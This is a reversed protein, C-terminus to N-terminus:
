LVIEALREIDDLDDSMPHFILEDLGLDAFEKVAQRLSDASGHMNASVMNAFDEGSISYYDYAKGRGKEVDGLAFYAIAVLKPAGERGFDTWAKRAGDLMGAAMSAPVSGAIYGEGWKAMRELAAPAMGGLLLPVEISGGPVGPNESGPVPEGAWLDRFVELAENMRKGLGKPGAGEVVFDDPRGGLGIGATLRGGSVGQIGALEKALLAAPWVPALMVTSMLGITSTAGAAAALAVTDMVGPYAVRGITGLSSFGAEESRKAWAPIVEPRVDRVQNPLGIGIKM